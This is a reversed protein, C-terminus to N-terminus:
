EALWSVASAVSYTEERVKRLIASAWISGTSLDSGVAFEFNGIKSEQGAEAFDFQILLILADKRDQRTHAMDNAKTRVCAECWPQAPTHTLRHRKIEEASAAKPGRLGQVCVEVELIGKEPIAVPGVEEVDRRLEDAARAMPVASELPAVLAELNQTKRNRQTWCELAYHNAVRQIEVLGAKEHQLVGGRTDYRAYRQPARSCFRGESLIPKRVDTVQFDVIITRNGAIRPPVRREGYHALPSGDALSLGPNRGRALPVWSFCVHVDACNDTLMMIKDENETGSDTRAETM